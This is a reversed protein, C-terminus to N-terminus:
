GEISGEWMQMIKAQCKCEIKGSSYTHIFCHVNRENPRVYKKVYIDCEDTQENQSIIIM